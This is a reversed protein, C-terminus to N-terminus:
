RELRALMREPDAALGPSVTIAVSPRVTLPGRDASPRSRRWSAGVSADLYSTIGQKAIEKHAADPADANQETTLPLIKALVLGIASDLLIPLSGTAATGSRAARRIPHPLPSGASSSRVRNVVATHGSLDIVIIPRRTPLLDLGGEDAAQGDRDPGVPRGLAM